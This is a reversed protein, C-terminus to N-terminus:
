KKGKLRRYILSAGIPIVIFILGFLLLYNLYRQNNGKELLSPYYEDGGPLDLIEPISEKFDGNDLYFNYIKGEITKIGFFDRPNVFHENISCNRWSYHSATPELNNKDNILESIKYSKVLKGKTYFSLAQGEKCSVFCPAVDALYDGNDNIVIDEKFAYWDIIYIPDISNNKYLGSKLYTDGNLDVIKNKGEALMVFVLNEGELDIRYSVPVKMRDALCSSPIVLLSLFFIIGLIKFLTKNRM